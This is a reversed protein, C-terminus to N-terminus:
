IISNSIGFDIIAAGAASLGTFDYDSNSAKQKEMHPKQMEYRANRKMIKDHRKASREIRDQNQLNIASAYTM